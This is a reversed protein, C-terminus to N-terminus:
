GWLSKHFNSDASEQPPFPVPKQIKFRKSASKGIPCFGVETAAETRLNNTAKVM